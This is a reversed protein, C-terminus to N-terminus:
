FRFGLTAQIRHNNDKVETSLTPLDAIGSFAHYNNKRCHNVYAMDVYFGGSHYGFGATIYQNSTDYIYAPNTGAVQVAVVDNQVDKSTTSTQYSYGARLSFNDTVRYEAGLRMTHSPSLYSKIEYTADLYEKGRDDYIRTADNATLEYDASLIGKGGLVGAISGILKWPTKIKYYVVNEPYKEEFVYKQKVLDGYYDASINGRYVDKMNYYTPTHLAFGLRLENIPKFIVGLKANIGTGVTRSNNVIGLDVNGDVLKAKDIEARDHIQTNTLVEGYYTYSEYVMDTIGVTVGWYLKNYVNGGVAVNYEDTHGWQEVDFEAEGIVGDYGLGSFKKGQTDTPSILYTQFAAIQDWRAPGDYYPNFNKTSRLDSVSVGDQMAKEALYDTVSSPINAMYGTFRRRFSNIRNYSIGFNLNPMVDNNLKVAGVFGVNSFQFQNNTCKENTATSSNLDLGLTASVDHSRYVGIGAPNQGLTSMDGGLAGFAGGMSVFRSTGRMQTQSYTLADFAYQANAVLPLAISAILLNIKKM